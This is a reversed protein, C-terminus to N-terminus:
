TEHIMIGRLHYLMKKKLIYEATKYGKVDEVIYKETENDTYCFDAIYESKELIVKGKKRGGRPGIIDPGYVAPTLQFHVQRELGSIMGAREMWKLEQWRDAEKQSDFKQGDIVVRKSGYKSRNKARYGHGYNM